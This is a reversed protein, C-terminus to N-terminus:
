YHKVFKRFEEMLINTVKGPRGNGIKKNNVKVVPVIGKNSATLFMEDALCIEEESVDRKIVKYRKRRALKITINRTIGLLINKGPTIVVGNKVIFFNSTSAESAKGQYTYVIEAAKEKIRKKTNKIAIIYNSTKAEPCDRFHEITIVKAGERYLKEPLLHRKEIMILFTGKEAPTIGDSSVGGTLITRIAPHKLKNLKLLKSITKKYESEILPVNLNLERASNKFRKWHESLMFPKGNATVMFDFVGYGRLLGLDYPSIGASKLPLYRGNLFIIKPM